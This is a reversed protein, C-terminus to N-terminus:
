VTTADAKKKKDSGMIKKLSEKITAPTISNNIYLALRDLFQEKDQSNTYM